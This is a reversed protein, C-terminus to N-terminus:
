RIDSWDTWLIGGRSWEDVNFVMVEEGYDRKLDVIRHYQQSLRQAWVLANCVMKLLVTACM